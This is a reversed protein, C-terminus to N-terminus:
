SAGYTSRKTGVASVWAQAFLGDSRTSWELLCRAHQEYGGERLQLALYVGILPLSGYCEYRAAMRIDQFGAEALYAGLKHGIRLDGGNTEQLGAYAEAAESLERSPPALLLGSWDPSCLGVHGGPKLVRRFEEVACRPDSLHEMLAHCLISDFTDDEFPLAYCSARYFTVNGVGKEAAHQRAHDVQSAAIDVGTVMGPAVRSALEVTMTGPGCGCDMLRDGSQVYPLFFAAHSALTRRSMFEVANPTHGPTYVEDHM